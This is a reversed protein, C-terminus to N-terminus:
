IKQLPERYVVRFREMVLPAKQDPKRGIRRCESVIYQWYIPRWTALTGDGEAGERAYTEPVEDYPIISIDTTQIICVSNENGDTVIWYDGVQPIPRGDSEYSWLVSGTATKTGQLVLDVVESADERTFGFFFSGAFDAPRDVDAPLSKLYQRWYRDTKSAM